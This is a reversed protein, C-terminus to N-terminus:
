KLSNIKGIIISVLLVVVFIAFVIALPIWLPCLVWIWPWDIIGILKLAIFIVLLAGTIFSSGIEINVSRKNGRSM